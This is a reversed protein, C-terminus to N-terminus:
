VLLKVWFFAAEDNLSRIRMKSALLGPHSDMILDCTPSLMRFYKSLPQSSIYKSLPQSSCMKWRCFTELNLGQGKWDFFHTPELCLYGNGDTGKEWHLDGWGNWEELAGIGGPAAKQSSWPGAALLIFCSLKRRSVSVKTQVWGLEEEQLGAELWLCFLVLCVCFFCLAAECTRDAYCAPM